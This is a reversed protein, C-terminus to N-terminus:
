ICNRLIFDLRSDRLFPRFIEDIEDKLNSSIEYKLIKEITIQYIAFIEDIEYFSLYASISQPSIPINNQYKPHKSDGGVSYHKELKDKWKLEENSYNHDILLKLLHREDDRSYAAISFRQAKIALKKIIVCAELNYFLKKIDM